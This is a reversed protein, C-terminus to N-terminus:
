GQELGCRRLLDPIRGFRPRPRDTLTLEYEHRALQRRGSLWYAAARHHGDDIQLSGDEAESLRIPPLEDGCLIAQILGPIQEARRLNRQSVYVVTIDM